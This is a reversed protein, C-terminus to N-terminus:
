DRSEYAVRIPAKDEDAMVPHYGATPGNRRAAEVHTLTEVSRPKKRKAM